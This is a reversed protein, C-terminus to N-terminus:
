SRGALSRMADLSRELVRARDADQVERGLIERALEATLTATEQALLTRTEAQRRTVEEEVRRLFRGAEAEAQEAIREAEARGEREARDRLEVVEQEVEALRRVVQSRLEEAEALKRQAEELEHAIGERRSELFRSLPRGVFWYLLSLFALLNLPLWVADPIFLHTAGGESAWAPAATALGAAAVIARRM